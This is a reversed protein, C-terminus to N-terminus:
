LLLGGEEFARLLSEGVQFRLLGLRLFTDLICAFLGLFSALFDTVDLVLVKSWEAFLGPDLIETCVVLGNPLGPLVEDLLTSVNALM